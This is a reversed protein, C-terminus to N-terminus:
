LRVGVVLETAVNYTERPGNEFSDTLDLSRRVEASLGVPLLRTTEIGVGFAVGFAASSYYERLGWRGPYREGDPGILPSATSGILISARPGGSVFPSVAGPLRLKPTLALSLYDFRETLVQTELPNGEIDTWLQENRYGRQVYGGEIVLSLASRETASMEVTALVAVGTRSITDIFPLVGGQGDLLDPSRVDSSLLGAKVGFGVLTQGYVCPALSAAITFTTIALIHRFTYQTKVYLISMIVIDIVQTHDPLLNQRTLHHSTGVHKRKAGDEGM